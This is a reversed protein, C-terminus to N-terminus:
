NKYMREIFKPNADSILAAAAKDALRITLQEYECQLASVESM